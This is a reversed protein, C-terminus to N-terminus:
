KKKKTSDTRVLNEVRSLEEHLDSMEVLTETAIQYRAFRMPQGASSSRNQFTILIETNNNIFRYDRVFSGSTVQVLNSGDISSIYLDASDSENLLGDNNSDEFSILYIINRVRPDLTNTSVGAMPSAASHIFARRDLLTNIVRYDIDLFILNVDNDSIRNIEDGGPLHVIENSEDIFPEFGQKSVPLVRISTEPINKIEQYVLAVDENGIGLTDGEADFRREVDYGRGFEQTVLQYGIFILLALLLVGNVLWLIKLFKDLM